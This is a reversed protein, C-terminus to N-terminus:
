FDGRKLERFEDVVDNEIMYKKIFMKSKIIYAQTKLGKVDEVVVKDDEEYIFDAVYDVGRIKKGNHKFGDVLPFKPQLLLNQIEGAKELMMLQKYRKAELMSDFVIGNVKTKVAGYKSHKMKEEGKM